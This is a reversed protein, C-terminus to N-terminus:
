QGAAAVRLNTMLAIASPGPDVSGDLVSDIWDDRFVGTRRVPDVLAPNSRWHEVVKGALIEGGAPPRNAGIARQRAKRAIKGVTTAFQRTSNALSRNAYTIPAPRGDLPVRALESDLAVQLRSLFISNRKDRPSLGRAIAIFRDDLM